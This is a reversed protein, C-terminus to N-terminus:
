GWIFDAIWKAGYVLSVGIIIGWAYTKGRQFDGSSVYFGCVAILIVAIAKTVDNELLEHVKELPEIFPNAHLATAFLLVTFVIRFINKM